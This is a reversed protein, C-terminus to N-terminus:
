QAEALMPALKPAPEAPPKRSFGESVVTRFETRLRGRNWLGFYLDALLGLVLWLVFAGNFSDDANNRQPVLAWLCLLVVFALVPLVLIRTLALLAARNPKRNSLGLWAGVWSLAIMDAMLFGGVLLLIKLL